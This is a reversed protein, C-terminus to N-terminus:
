GRGDRKGGARARGRFGNPRRGRFEGFFCSLQISVIRAASIVVVAMLWGRADLMGVHAIEGFRGLLARGRSGVIREGAVAVALGCLIAAGFASTDTVSAAGPVVVVVIVILRTALAPLNVDLEDRVFRSSVDRERLSLGSYHLLYTYRYKPRSEEFLAEFGELQKWSPCIEEVQSRALAIRPM